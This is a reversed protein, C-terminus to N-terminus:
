LRRWYAEGDDPEFATIPQLHRLGDELWDECVVVLWRDQRTAGWFMTRGPSDRHRKAEVVPPIELLIEEVEREEVGHKEAMHRAGFAQNDRVWHVQVGVLAPNPEAVRELYGELLELFEADNM